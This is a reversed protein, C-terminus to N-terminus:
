LDIGEEIKAQYTEELRKATIECYKEEKEILVFNREANICAVGTSGSGAFPDLIFDDQNSHILILSEMLKIPKQTPHSTKEKGAVVSEVFCPRQYSLDLRNFAWKGGKMTLWVALEFDTIYRRDRNRPMPNKKEWRILDKIEYGVSEAYDSIVGLNKWANFIILSSDKSAISPLFYIWSLLDFGKDWEGFDIGKRGKMTTFNNKRSINYPPDTLVLDFKMDLEKMIDLCDGHYLKGFPNEYYHKIM